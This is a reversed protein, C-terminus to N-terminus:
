YQVLVCVIGQCDGVQPGQEVGAQYPNGVILQSAEHAQLAHLIETLQVAAIIKDGRALREVDFSTTEIKSFDILKTSLDTIPFFIAVSGVEYEALIANAIM